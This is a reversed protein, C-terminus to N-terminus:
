KDFRKIYLSYALFGIAISVSVIGISHLGLPLYQNTIFLGIGAATLLSFWKISSHIESNSEPQLITSALNESIGKDIIKNKLKHDLMKKLITIIFKMVLIIVFVVVITKYVEPDVRIFQAIFIPNM